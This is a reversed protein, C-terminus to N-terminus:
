LYFCLSRFTQLWPLLLESQLLCKRRVFNKESVSKERKENSKWLLERSNRIERRFCHLFTSLTEVGETSAVVNSQCSALEHRKLLKSQKLLNSFSIQWDPIARSWICYFCGVLRVLVDRFFFVDEVRDLHIINREKFFLCTNEGLCVRIKKPKM